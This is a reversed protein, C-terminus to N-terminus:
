DPVDIAQLRLPEVSSLVARVNVDVDVPVKIMVNVVPEVALM